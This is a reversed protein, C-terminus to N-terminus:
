KEGEGKLGHREKENATQKGNVGGCCFTLRNITLSHLIKRRLIAAQYSPVHLHLNELTVHWVKQSILNSITMTDSFPDPMTILSGSPRDPTLIGTRALAKKKEVVDFGARLGV